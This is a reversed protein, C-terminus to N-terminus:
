KILFINKIYGIIGKFDLDVLIIIIKFGTCCTKM